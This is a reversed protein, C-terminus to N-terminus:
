PGAPTLTLVPATAFGSLARTFNGGDTNVTLTATHSGSTEPDFRTHIVCTAAAALTSGCTGSREFQSTGGVSISNTVMLGDGTNELTYDFDPSTADIRLTGFDHDGAPTLSGAPTGASGTLARTSNGGETNVTLTASKSGSTQPNFRTHITCSAGAAVSSGCNNTSGFHASGGVNIATINMPGDATNSLTYDHDTSVSGVQVLGFDHDPAPTLSAVPVTGFGSLARTSNGAETNVNLTASQAGATEPDFRTNITCSSGGALVSGCNNSQEFETSGGVDISSIDLGGEGANTLTYAFNASTRNVNLNGFNNAGAPTLNATPQTDYTITVSPTSAGFSTIPAVVYNTVYSTNPVQPDPAQRAYNTGGGGGGGGYDTGSTGAAGGVWGGGGGGGAGCCSGTGADNGFGFGGGGGAGGAVPGIGTSSGGNFGGGAGGAGAAGVVSAGGGGGSGGAVLLRDNLTFQGARIDSAGGGAASASGFTSGAGAGGGYGVTAQLPQGPTVVLDGSVQAGRTVFQSGGQGGSGGQATVHLINHDVGAPM